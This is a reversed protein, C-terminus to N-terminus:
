GKHDGRSAIANSLKYQQVLQEPIIVGFSNGIKVLKTEM